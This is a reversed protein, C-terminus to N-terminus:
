RNHNITIPHESLACVHVCVCAHVRVHVCMCVCVRARACVCVCVCLSEILLDAADLQKMASEVLNFYQKCVCVCVCVKWICLISCGSEFEGRGNLQAASDGSVDM